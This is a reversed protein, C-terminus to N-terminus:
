DEMDQHEEKGGFYKMFQVREYLAPDTSKEQSLKGRFQSINRYNKQAMWRTMEDLITQIYGPGNKYLTSTVQVATAGALLQKITAEGDHVGTSSAIDCKVRGSMIAVWRLSIPLEEPSSLVHTALVKLNNIDFDPSYFRNFLVLGSIGTESLKHIMQGLNTFYYSMKLSIPISVEKQVRDVVKFYFEENQESSRNIDSPLLFINLELADAGADQLQKSFLAWEHSYVCNVSAIVPISVAKKADKILNLCWDMKNAKIEYDFYDYGEPIFGTAGIQKLTDEYELIIEEEFISKLVVAGAGAAELDAIREASGTLGCSGVIIPNKLTLGLYNTTLDTM